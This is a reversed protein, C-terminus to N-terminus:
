FELDLSACLYDVMPAVRRFRDVLVAKLESSTAIADTFPSSAVFDKRKIDDILEHGADFGRPSRTLCAGGFTFHAAFAKSRTAKKWTAPNDAMFERIRRVTESQPHWIGGGCFCDGQQFHMYFVPAEVQRSREHFLRAGSWTKYPTKDNAFRTDRHIRFMSGGQTRPDAVFHTSIKALPAQLDAILQLFPQRLTEEYRAKNESFWPRNNNAKLDRLFKFTAPTFYRTAM